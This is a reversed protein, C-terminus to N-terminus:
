RGLRERVRAAFVEYREHLTAGVFQELVTPAEFREGRLFQERTLDVELGSPLRNWAHRDVRADGHVVGSVLIEGGLYERVIRATVDCHQYSPNEETWGAPDDSTEASWAGRIADELQGLTMPTPQEVPSVVVRRLVRGEADVIQSVSTVVGTLEDLFADRAAEGDHELAEVVVVDGRRQLRGRAAGDGFWGDGLSAISM